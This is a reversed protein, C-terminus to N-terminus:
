QDVEEMVRICAVPDYKDISLVIKHQAYSVQQIWMTGQTIQSIYQSGLISTQGFIHLM